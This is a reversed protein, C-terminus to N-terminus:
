ECYDKLSRVTGSSVYGYQPAALVIEDLAYSQGVQKVTVTVM